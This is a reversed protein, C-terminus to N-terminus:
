SHLENIMDGFDQLCKLPPQSGLSACLLLRRSLLLLFAGGRMAQLAPLLAILQPLSRAVPPM